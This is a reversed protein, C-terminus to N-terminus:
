KGVVIGNARLYRVVGSDIQAQHTLSVAYESIPRLATTDPTTALILLLPIM